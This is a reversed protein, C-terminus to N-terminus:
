AAIFATATLALAVGALQTRALRERLVLWALIVVGVPYLGTIVATLVLLGERTALLFLVNAAMDLLGSVTAIGVVRGRPWSPRRASVLGALLALGMVRAGILPWLGSDRPTQDLAVFFVGFLLGAALATLLGRRNDAGAEATATPRSVLVTAGIGLVIGIAATTGPREGLGLGVIVPLAAGTLSALPASLGMAGLSLARFYAILGMAGGVGAVMGWTIAAASLHGPVVPIAATVILLGVAQSLVTVPLVHARRSALGGLFDAVGFSIASGMSLAVAITM